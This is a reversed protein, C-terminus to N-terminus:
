QSSCLDTRTHTHPPNSCPLICFLSPFPSLSHRQPSAPSHWISSKSQPLLMVTGPSWAPSHGPSPQETQALMDSVVPQVPPGGAQALHSQGALIHAVCPWGVWPPPPTQRGAAQLQADACGWEPLALRGGGTVASPSEM